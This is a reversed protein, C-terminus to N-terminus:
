LRNTPQYEMRPSTSSRLSNSYARSWSKEIPLILVGENEAIIVIERVGETVVWQDRMLGLM